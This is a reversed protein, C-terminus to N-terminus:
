KEVCSSLVGADPDGPPPASSAQKRICVGPGNGSRSLRIQMQVVLAM